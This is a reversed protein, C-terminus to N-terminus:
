VCVWVWVWVGVCVCESTTFSVEQSSNGRGAHGLGFVALTYETDSSLRPVTCDLEEGLAQDEVGRCEWQFHHPSSFNVIIHLVPPTGKHPLRFSLTLSDHSSSLLTPTSPASLPATLTHHTLVTLHSPTILSTHPTLHSPTILSFLSSHPHSSHSCHPTLTILLTHYLSVTHSIIHWVVMLHTHTDSVWLRRSLLLAVARMLTM